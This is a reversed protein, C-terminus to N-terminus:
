AATDNAAGEVDDHPERRRCGGQGIERAARFARLLVGRPAPSELGAGVRELRGRRLSGHEARDRESAAANCRWVSTSSVVTPMLSDIIFVRISAVDRSASLPAM